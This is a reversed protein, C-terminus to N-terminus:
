KKIFIADGHVNNFLNIQTKLFFNKENLLTEIESLHKQNDYFDCLSYECIIVEVKNLIDYAAELIEYESGQTDILLIEPFINKELCFNNLTDCFVNIKSTKIKNETETIQLHYKSIEKLSQATKFWEDRNSQDSSLTKDYYKNFELFGIKNSLAINYCHVNKSKLTILNNFAEPDPEFAHIECDNFISQIEPIDVGTYAGIEFITKRKNNVYEKLLHISSKAM